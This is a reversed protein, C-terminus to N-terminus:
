CVLSAFELELDDYAKKFGPKKMLQHHMEEHTVLQIENKEM